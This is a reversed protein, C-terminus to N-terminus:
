NGLAQLAETAPAFNPNFQAAAQFDARAAAVDGLAQQARGRWYFSEEFYPGQGVEFTRNALLVVDIYRGTAYYAEYPGFQYYMMRDPWQYSRSKDFATAAEEVRGLANLSTGMNFWLYMDDPASQLARQNAILSDQWMLADDRWTPGVIAALEAERAPEYLVIYTHNFQPWYNTLEDYPLARGDPGNFGVQSPADWILSDYVWLQRAADDYGVALLYHGYWGYYSVEGPSDYGIEIIVPFNNALLIRLLDLSGNVRAHAAVPTQSNVYRVIEQPTVNRDEPNPKLFTATDYQSLQLGFISLAMATTAPGCNNWGQQQYNVTAFRAAAPLPTPALTPTPEPTATPEPTPSVALTPTAQLAATPVVTALPEPTVDSDILAALQQAAADDVAVTPLAPGERAPLVADQVFQPLQVLYRTPLSRLFTTVGLLLVVIILVTAVSLVIPNPSNNRRRM